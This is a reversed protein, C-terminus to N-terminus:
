GGEGWGRGVSLAKVTGAKTSLSAASITSNGLLIKLMATKASFHFRAPEVPTEQKTQSQEGQIQYLM